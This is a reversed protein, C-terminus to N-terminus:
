PKMLLFNIKKLFMVTIWPDFDERILNTVMGICTITGGYKFGMCNSDIRFYKDDVPIIYGDRSLLIRKYLILRKLLKIMSNLMDIQGASKEIAEDLLQIFQDKNDRRQKRNTSETAKQEIQEKSLYYINFDKSRQQESKDMNNSNSLIKKGLFFSVVCEQIADKKNDEINKIENGQM